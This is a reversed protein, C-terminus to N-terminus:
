SPNCQVDGEKASAEGGMKRREERETKELELIATPKSYMIFLTNNGWDTALSAPNLPLRARDMDPLSFKVFYKKNTTRVVVKRQVTDISTQYVEKPWPLNRIRM